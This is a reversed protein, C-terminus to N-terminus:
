FDPKGAQSPTPGGELALPEERRAKEAALQARLAAIEDNPDAYATRVPRSTQQPFRPCDRANHGQQRCRFCGGTARLAEKEAETLKTLRQGPNPPVLRKTPVWDMQDYEAHRTTQSKPPPAKTRREFSLGELASSTSHLAQIIARLNEERWDRISAKALEDNVSRKLHGIISLDDKLGADCVLQEFRPYFTAFPEDRKQRLDHLKSLARAAANPDIFITDLHHCFAEPTIGHVLQNDYWAVVIRQTDPGLRSFLYTAQDTPSGISAGDIRLKERAETRWVRYESRRGTFPSLEPLRRRPAPPTLDENPPAPPGAQEKPRQSIVQKELQEVELRMRALEARRQLLRQEVEIYRLEKEMAETCDKMDEDGGVIVAEQGSLFKTIRYRAKAESEKRPGTPIVHGVRGFSTSVHGLNYHFLHQYALV